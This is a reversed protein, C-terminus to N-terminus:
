AMLVQAADSGSTQGDVDVLSAKKSEIAQAVAEVLREFQAEGGGGSSAQQSASLASQLEPTSIAGGLVVAGARAGGSGGDGSSGLMQKLSASVEDRLTATTAETASSATSLPAAVASAVQANSLPVSVRPPVSANAGKGGPGPTVSAQSGAAYLGLENPGLAAPGVMGGNGGAGGAISITGEAGFQVNPGHSQAVAGHQQLHPHHHHHPHVQNPGAVFGNRQTPAPVPTRVPPGGPVYPFPPMLAAGNAPSAYVGAPIHMGHPTGSGGGAAYVPNMGMPMAHEPAGPSRTLPGVGPGHGHAHAYAHAHGPMGTSLHSQQMRVQAPSPYNMKPGEFPSCEPTSLQPVRPHNQHHHGTAAMSAFMVDPMAAHVSFVNRGGGGLADMTPGRSMTEAPRHHFNGIEHPGYPPTAYPIVDLHHYPPRGHGHHMEVMPSFHAGPGAIAGGQYTAAALPAPVPPLPSHLVAPSAGGRYSYSHPSVGPSANPDHLGLFPMSTRLEGGSTGSGASAGNIITETASMSKRARPSGKKQMSESMLMAALAARATEIVSMKQEPAFAACMSCSLLLRDLAPRISPSSAAVALCHNVMDHIANFLLEKQDSAMRKPVLAMLSSAFEIPKCADKLQGGGEKLLFLLRELQQETFYVARDEDLSASLNRTTFIEDLLENFTSLILTVPRGCLKTNTRARVIRQAAKRDRCVLYCANSTKGSQLDIPIHVAQAFTSKPALTFVPDPLWKMVDDCGVTWPINDIRVVACQAIEERSPSSSVNTSIDANMPASVDSPSQAQASAQSRVVEFGPLLGAPAEEEGHLGQVGNGNGNQGADEGEGEGSGPLAQLSLVGEGFRTPYSTTTTATTTTSPPLPVARAAPGGYPSQLQAIAPLSPQGPAHVHAAGVMGNPIGMAQAHAHFSPANMSASFAAVGLHHQGAVQMAYAEHHLPPPGFVVENGFMDVAATVSSAASHSSTSGGSGGTGNQGAHLVLGGGGLALMLKPLAISEVPTRCAACVHSRPPSTSVQNIGSSCCAACANHRCPLLTTLTTTLIGCLECEGSGDGSTQISDLAPPKPTSPPDPGHGDDGVLAQNSVDSVENEEGGRQAHISGNLDFSLPYAPRAGDGDAGSDSGGGGNLLRLGGRASSGITMRRSIPERLRSSRLASGSSPLVPSFVTDTSSYSAFSRDQQQQQGNEDDVLLVAGEDPHHSSDIRAESLLSTVGNGGEAAEAAARQARWLQPALGTITNSKPRTPTRGGSIQTVAGQANHNEQTAPAPELENLISFRNSPSTPPAANSPTPSPNSSASHVSGKHSPVRWRPSAGGIKVKITSSAAGTKSSEQHAGRAYAVAADRAKSGDDEEVETEDESSHARAASVTSARPRGGKVGLAGLSTMASPAVASLTSSSSGMSLPKPLRSTDIHLTQRTAPTTSGPLQAGGSGGLRVTILSSLSLRKRLAASRPGERSQAVSKEAEGAGAGDKAGDEAQAGVTIIEEDVQQQQQQQQQQQAGMEAASKMTSMGVAVASPSPLPSVAELPPEESVDAIIPLQSQRSATRDRTM